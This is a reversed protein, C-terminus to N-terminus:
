AVVREEPIGAGDWRELVKAVRQQLKIFERAQARQEERLARLERAAGDSSLLDRTQPATYVQGPQNFNILEPGDEGVLALGGAYYGGQAFAPITTAGAARLNAAVEEPTIGYANAADQLSVGYEIMTQALAEASMGSAILQDINTRLGSYYADPSAGYVEVQEYYLRSSTSHRYRDSGGQRDVFDAGYIDRMQGESALGVFRGDPTYIRGDIDVIQGTTPDYRSLMYGGAYGARSYDVVNNNAVIGGPTWQHTRLYDTINTNRPDTIGISGPGNRYNMYALVPDMGMGEASLLESPNARYYAAVDAPMADLNSKALSTGDTGYQSAGGTTIRQYDAAYQPNNKFFLYMAFDFDDGANGGISLGTVRMWDPVEYDAGFQANYRLGHFWEKFKEPSSLAEAAGYTPRQVSPQYGTPRTGAGGVASGAGGGAAGSGGSSGYGGPIAGGSGGGRVGSYQLLASSLAAVADAVTKVTTDVGHVADIQQQALDLQMDLGALQDELLVVQQEAASLQPQVYRQLQELDSALRQSAIDRDVRSAYNGADLETQLSRVAESVKDVGPVAGGALVTSILARAENAQMASGSVTTGRLSRIQDRLFDFVDKISGELTHASDLASQLKEKEAGVSRQLASFAASVGAEADELAYIRAQLAQNSADLAAIERARLGATDGMLQMLRTELGEREQAIEAARRAQEDAARQAAITVDEAATTISAFAGSMRLLVAVAASGSEGLAMNEEVMARFEERTKPMKLGVAELESAIDRQMAAAREADSYFNQYYTNASAVFSDMGGSAKVLASVAEDTLSSFGAMHRGMAELSDKAAAIADVTASIGEISPTDGLANLMDNAWGPLDMEDLAARMSKAVEAQYQKLGEEGDAFEKPAWKSSQADRWDLLKKGDKSIVFSGWAGDKSKDDAFATSVSYGAKQGFAVAAKDLSLAVGRAITSTVTEAEKSYTRTDDFGYNGYQDAGTVLGGAASYTSGAGMHPTSKKILSSLLAIGLALPGLAGMLTGLGGAINGAGIAISGADLAGMLGAEGILASAGSSLGMGFAGGMRGILSAGNIATSVGGGQGASAASGLGLAGTLGLLQGVIRVVFPQAFAKYLTDAVTTKFTTALSKTFSKWGDKGNNMMDAFGQRFIDDYKSVSQKWEDLFAKSSANATAIAAAARADAILEDRRKPDSATKAKIEEIQKLLGIEIRYQEMAVERASESQGMLSLEFQIADNQERIAKGYEYVAQAASNNGASKYADRMAQAQARLANSARGSLDIGDMTVAQRELEAAGDEMRAKTLEGLAAGTVGVAAGELGYVRLQEQAARAAKEYGTIRAELAESAKADAMASDARLKAVNQQYDREAEQMQGTIRAVEAQSTKKKAAQALEAEFNAKRKGWVEEEKALSEDIADIESKGGLKVLLAQADYFSKRSDLIAKDNNKYAQLKSSLYDNLAAEAGKAVGTKKLLEDQQKKLAETYENGVLVGAQNLRILEAMDKLYGDHVGSQKLRFANAAELDAARQKEFRERAQGSATVGANMNPNAAAGGTLKAQEAQAAKLEKIYEQLQFYSSQLYINKTTAAGRAQLAAFEAEAQKLNAALAKTQQENTKFVDPLLALDTRLGFVSGTLANITGNLTNAALNLTSFLTRGVAVGGGAALESFMGGGAKRTNEMADSVATLDRTIAELEGAVAKSVGSDGANQKLRDWASAVRNVSADLRGAAKEAADGINAELAKAFKPLFDDAMVQGQELMKGLEATTVGMAKAAVQFAGPLREGLQGRLEEAQVTGKSIMQQLALLVGSSQDASLGMVASAKAVSEFVARAKDGELATGKAAAQFQGYAKATSSFELGLRQTVGRLYEIERASNGGTSFDLMTRLREASASADFMAKSASMAGQVVAGGLFAAVGTRAMALMSQASDKTAGATKGLEVQERKYADIKAGVAAAVQQASESMGRSQAIYREREARTMGLQKAEDILKQIYQSETQSFGAVASKLSDFSSVASKAAAAQGGLAAQAKGSSAGLKEMGAAATASTQALGDLATGRGLTELSKGTRKAAGEVQGMSKEVIPGKSALVDLAKIGREVGDTQMGIGISTVEETSM